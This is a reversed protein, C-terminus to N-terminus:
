TIEQMAEDIEKLHLKYLIKTYRVPFWNIIRWMQRADKGILLRHKKKRIAKMIDKAAYDATNIFTKEFEAALQIKEEESLEKNGWNADKAINTQIGGPHISLVHIHPFDIMAEMRLSETFGRIGFKSACYASQKAVAGLGLISSINAVCAQDRKKLHPLFAKTGYVMGWFNIDMLWKFHEISIEEVTFAGLAVGANNIVVDVNGFHNVVDNAYNQYAEWNAVDLEASHTRAGIQVLEEETALLSDKNIDSIALHAGAKAFNLALAKGIGSGCGSIVVVKERFDM